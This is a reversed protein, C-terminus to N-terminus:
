AENAVPDSPQVGLKAKLAALQEDVERNKADSVPTGAATGYPPIRLGAVEAEAEMQMIKEEMRAFGRAASGSEISHTVGAQAIQKKAQALQARAALENRKNRMAYFQEKMEQLQKLLEEAQAKSHTHLESLEKAKGAFFLKQELAQRAAAENGAKLAEEASQERAAAAREAEKWQQLLKRENAMQKAVTVEAQAIEEEMDRIYQNLMVVPNEVKDLLEHISARTMDGIRKFVSM